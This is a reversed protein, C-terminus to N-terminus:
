KPSNRDVIIMTDHNISLGYSPPNHLANLALLKGLFSKYKLMKKEKYKKDLVKKSRYQPKLFFCPTVILTNTHLKTSQSIAMASIRIIKSLANELMVTPM